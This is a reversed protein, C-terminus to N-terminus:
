AAASTSSNAPSVMPETDADSATRVWCVAAGSAVARPTVTRTRSPSFSTAAPSQSIDPSRVATSPHSM